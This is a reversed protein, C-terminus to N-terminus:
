LNRWGRRDQASTLLTSMDMQSWQKINDIWIKRQRGRKRGGEVTGQLITKSLSSHRTVHGFWRMKKKKITTLLPEQKGASETIKDWVYENTKHEKYSINLIRRFCKMEFAQIRRETDATLTWSECGYTAISTVLTKYLKIKTRTKIDKSRWMNTLRAMSSLAIALRTKIEKTSTGESNIVAGLYRFEKVEELKEGNMVINTATSQSDSNVLIKSKESSIEMGYSSASNELRTTLDQLEKESRGMLDIDDAFRLNCLQRGGISITSEFNILAEQMINELFINFLVPSLICGQRVGVTTLFYDGLEGGLLVASKASKYLSEIVQILDEDFNYQRMVHWLGEHWVRDFAKKFDIFNHYLEQQHQLCKEILIRINFIQEATSRGPRFGAQEDSLIEESKQKLRKLIIKLMVKSPHSILSITRYNQCKKLNGKKPLPILISKTWEDPWEKSTWIRQCIITLANIMEPGGYKILEAPINDIGASKGTKMTRVAEEVEEKLIQTNETDLDRDNVKEKVIDEDINLKHNYLEQCYQTWRGLVASSETLLKGDKDEIVTTRPQETKTLEKITEYAIKSNGRNMEKEIMNCKNEIWEEKAKAKKEKIEKNVQRYKEKSEDNEHRLPKLNRRKDCLDLINNDMWKQKKQRERGLVEESTETIATNFKDQISEIDENIFDLAAFKGGLTAQFVEAVNQDKLKELNFRIRPSKNKKNAKLKLRVTTLVLDHDSGIDAGPYTRTQAKNISSKFKRPTLIYDIQNHYKGCFSHWTTRRSLKHPHLTNAITLKHSSAFELLRLGRENTEGVGFQGVTGPWHTYADTGIKANWDGQVVLFDKKPTQKITQELEEYFEEIIDDEYDSTPAYVQIITINNPKASMRISVLRSSIPTCSIVSSACNKNVLFGVGHIHKNEDGSYWLKHGEKTMTEGFNKLRTECLGLIDWKYQELEYTLEDIKGNLTRVNWTGITISTSQMKISPQSGTAYKDGGGQSAVTPPATTTSGPGSRDPKNIGKATGTM